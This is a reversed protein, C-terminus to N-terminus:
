LSSQWFEIITMLSTMIILIIILYGHDINGHHDNGDANENHNAM